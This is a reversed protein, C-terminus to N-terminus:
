GSAWAAVDEQRGILALGHAISTLEGGTAIRDEGFRTAFREYPESHTLNLGSKGALLFKRGFSPMADFVAVRRGQEALAEAAALGAPGGGVIAVDIQAIAGSKTATTM